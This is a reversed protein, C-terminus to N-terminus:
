SIKTFLDYAIAASVAQHKRLGSGERIEPQLCCGWWFGVMGALLGPNLEDHWAAIDAGQEAASVLFETSGFKKPTQSAWNWDVLVLKNQRPNYALNDSRVDCHGFVEDPQGLLDEIGRRIKTIAAPNHVADLTSQLKSSHLKVEATQALLQYKQALRDLNDRDAVFNSFSDVNGIKERFYPHLSLSEADGPTVTAIELRNVAAIVASIYSHQASTDDPLTWHWGEVTPYATMALVTSDDSLASWEPVVDINESRLLEMVGQDKALWAREQQGDGELLSDEVEKVFLSKNGCRVIARQNLSFGGSVPEITLENTGVGLQEGAFLIAHQSIPPQKM